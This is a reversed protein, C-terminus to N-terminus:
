SNLQVFEDSVYGVVTPDDVLKVPWWILGDAGIQSAGTTTVLTGNELQQVVSSNERTPADRLNVPGNFVVLTSDPPFDVEPGLATTAGAPTPTQVAAAGTAPPQAGPVPTPSVAPGPTPQLTTAPKSAPTATPANVETSAVLPVDTPEVNSEDGGILAAAWFWLLGLMLVIGVLPLAIRLYDTWYREEPQYSVTPEQGGSPGGRDPRPPPGSTGSGGGSGGSSAMMTAAAPALRPTPAFLGLPSGQPMWKMPARGSDDLAEWYNGFGRSCDISHEDVVHSQQPSYLRSNRCWGKQWVSSPEYHKCTQCRRAM